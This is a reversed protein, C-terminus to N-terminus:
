FEIMREGTVLQEVGDSRYVPPLEGDEGWFRGILMLGQLPRFYKRAPVTDRFKVRFSDVLFCCVSTHLYLQGALLRKISM